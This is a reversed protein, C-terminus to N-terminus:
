LMGLEKLAAQIEEKTLVMTEKMLEAMIEGARTTAARFKLMRPMPGSFRARGSMTLRTIDVEGSLYSIFLDYTPFELLFEARNRYEEIQSAPVPAQEVIKGDDYRTYSAMPVDRVIMLTSTTYGKAAALYKEDSNIRKRLEEMWEPSGFIWSM